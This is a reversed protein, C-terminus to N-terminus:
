GGENMRVVAQSWLHLYRFRGGREAHRFRVIFQDRPIRVLYDGASDTPLLTMDTGGLASFASRPGRPQCTMVVAGEERQEVRFRVGPAEYVGTVRSADQAGAGVARMRAPPVLLRHFLRGALDFVMTEADPHFIVAVVAIERDPWLWLALTHGYGSGWHGILEVETSYLRWGLCGAHGVSPDPIPVHPRRMERVAGDGLLRRLEPARHDLHLRAFALLDRPTTVAQDVPMMWAPGDCFAPPEESGGGLRRMLEPPTSGASPTTERMGLPELLDERLADSWARGSVTEVLRGLVAYGTSSYSYIQGPPLVTGLRSSLGVYDALGAGPEPETWLEDLDGSRLGSTHSLLRRVTMMSAVDRDPLRFEEVYRGAPADLDVLGGDVLRMVLTATLLKTASFLPFVRGAPDPADGGAVYMERGRDLVALIGGPFGYERVMRPFRDMTVELRRAVLDAKMEM